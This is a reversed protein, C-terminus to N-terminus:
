VNRFLFDYGVDILVEYVIRDTDFMQCISNLRDATEFQEKQKRGFTHLIKM